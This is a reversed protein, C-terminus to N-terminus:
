ISPFQVIKSKKLNNQYDEIYGLWGRESKSRWKKRGVISTVVYDLSKNHKKVVETLSMGSLLDKAMGYVHKPLIEELNNYKSLEKLINEIQEKRTESVGDINFKIQDIIMGKIYTYVEYADDRFQELQWLLFADFNKPTEKVKILGKGAREIFELLLRRQIRWFIRLMDGKSFGYAKAVMEINRNYYFYSEVFKHHRKVLVNEYDKIIDLLFNVMEIDAYCETVYLKIDKM